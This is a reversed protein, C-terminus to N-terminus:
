ELRMSRIAADAAVLLEALRTGARAAPEELYATGARFLKVWGDDLPPVAGGPPELFRVLQPLRSIHLDFIVVARKEASWLVARWEPVFVIEQAEVVFMAVGRLKGDGSEVYRPAIEAQFADVNGWWGGRVRPQRGQGDFGEASFDKPDIARRRWIRELVAVANEKEARTLAWPDLEEPTSTEPSGPDSVFARPLTAVAVASRARSQGPEFGPDAAFAVAHFTMGQMVPVYAESTEPHDGPGFPLTAGWAAPYSFTLTPSKKGVSGTALDAASAM